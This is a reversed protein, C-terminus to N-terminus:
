EGKAPMTASEPKLDDELLLPPKGFRARLKNITQHIAPRLIIKRELARKGPFNLLMVGILITIFGQGPVGPLSLLTGIVILVLGLLNKLVLATWRIVPHHEAFAPPHHDQFYTAPLKVLICTVAAISGLFMVLFLGFGLLLQHWLPMERLAEILNTLWDPM